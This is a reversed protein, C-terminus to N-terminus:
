NEQDQKIYGPYPIVQCSEQSASREKPYNSIRSQITAFASKEIAQVSSVLGSGVGTIM